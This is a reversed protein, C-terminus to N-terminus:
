AMIVYVLFVSLGLALYLSRSSTEWEESQGTVATTVGAPLELEALAADIQDAVTGLGVGEINASVLGVRQQGIRRIENPGRGVQIEAVASLPIPPTQLGLDDAAIASFAGVGPPNVALNRLEDVSARDMGEARVRIPIKRDRRNFKSAEQGQVKDRVLEAVVRIDRGLRALVDRDYVIQVEPNGPQISADVDRLGDIRALRARVLETADSLEDLENGRIEVEVPTKFSFLVPR